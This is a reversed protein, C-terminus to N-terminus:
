CKRVKKLADFRPDRAKYSSPEMATSACIRRYDCNQCLEKNRPFSAFFANAIATDIIALIDKAQTRIWSHLPQLYERYEGRETAYFLSGGKVERGAIKEYAMAYLVRQLGEGGDFPTYNIKSPVRGTKYDRVWVDDGDRDVRDIVGKIKFADIEVSEKEDNSKDGGGSFEFELALIENINKEIEVEIWRFLEVKIRKREQRWRMDNGLMLEHCIDDAVREFTEEFVAYISELSKEKFPFLDSRRLEELISYYARHFFVGRTKADFFSDNELCFDSSVRLRLLVRYYFYLPCRAYYELDTVSYAQEKLGQKSFWKKLTPELDVVGDSLNLRLRRTSWYFRLARVLFPHLHLHACLGETDDKGNYRRRFAEDFLSLDYEEVDIAFTCDNPYLRQNGLNGSKEAEEVLTEYSPLTGYISRWSELLYLSPLRPQAPHTEMRSYSLYLQKKAASLAQRFITREFSRRQDARNLSFPSLGKGIHNLQEKMKDHLIPNQLSKAPFHRQALGLIFVVDFEKGGAEEALGLFVRGAKSEPRPRPMDRLLPNFIRFIQEFRISTNSDFVRLGDILELVHEPTRLAKLALDKLNKRWFDSTTDESRRITDLQEILPLAFNELETLENLERTLHSYRAEKESCADLNLKLRKRLANFRKKWQALGDGRRISARSILSEWSGRFFARESFRDSKAAFAELDNLDSDSFDSTVFQNNSSSPVQSFSLYEAFRKTSLGEDLCRLLALFARGSPEPIYAGKSPYLPIQARSFIELLLDVYPQRHRIFIGIRDASITNDIAYLIRRAVDLCEGQPTPGSFIEVNKHSLEKETKEFSRDTTFLTTQIRGLSSSLPDSNLDINQTEYIEEVGMSQFGFDASVWIIDTKQALAEIFQWKCRHMTKLDFIIIPGSSFISKSVEATALQYLLAEDILHESKLLENYKRYLLSIDKEDIASLHSVNIENQRLENFCELLLRSFGPKTAISDFRGFDDIENKLLEILTSATLGFRSFYTRNGWHPMALAKAYLEVSQRYINLLVSPSKSQGLLPYVCEMASLVDDSLVILEKTPTKRQQAVIWQRVFDLRKAASHSVVFQINKREVM